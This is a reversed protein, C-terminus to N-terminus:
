NENCHISRGGPGRTNSRSRGTGLLIIARKAKDSSKNCLSFTTNSVWANGDAGFRIAPRGSTSNILTGSSAKSVVRLIEEEPGRRRNGDKDMFIIYGQHWLRADGLCQDHDSSPCLTVYGQRTLATSRAYRLYGLLQNAQSVTANSAVLHQLGPIGAGLSVISVSLVTMLQLLTFGRLHTSHAVNM